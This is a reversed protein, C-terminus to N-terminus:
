GTLIRLSSIRPSLANWLTSCSGFVTSKAIIAVGAFVTGSTTSCHPLAPIFPSIIIEAPKLSTPGSPLASSSLISSILCLYSRRIIPGFQKPIIRGLMLRLAVNMFLIGFCPFMAKIECLPAKPVAM